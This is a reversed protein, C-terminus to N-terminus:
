SSNFFTCSQICPGGTLNIILHAENVARKGEKSAQGAREHVAIVFDKTGAPDASRLRLGCVQLLAYMMMIDREKFRTTLVGLFSYVLDPGVLDCLYCHCLLMSMNRCGLADDEFYSEELQLALKALFAAALSQANALASTGVIVAASMGVFQETAKPGSAAAQLM